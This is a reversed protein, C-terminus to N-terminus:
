AREGGRTRLCVLATLWATLAFVWAGVSGDLLGALVGGGQLGLGLTLLFGGLLAWFPSRGHAAAEEGSASGKLRGPLSAFFAGPILMVALGLAFRDLPVSRGTLRAAQLYAGLTNVDGALAMTLAVAAALWFGRRFPHRNEM